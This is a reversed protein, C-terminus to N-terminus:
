SGVDKHKAAIAHCLEPFKRYLASEHCSLKKSLAAISVQMNTENLAAVMKVRINEWKENLMRSKNKAVLISIAKCQEPYNKYLKSASYGIIKSIDKITAPPHEKVANNFAKLVDEKNPICRKAQKRYSTQTPTSIKVVPDKLLFEAMSVGIRYCIKSLYNVQPIHRGLRWDGLMNKNLGVFRAFEYTNGETVQQICRVLSFSIQERVPLSVSIPATKLLDGFSNATWVRELLATEQTITIVKNNSHCTKGLWYGCKSCFGARSYSDIFYLNCKCFPCEMILERSHVPCITIMNLAWLLPFYIIKGADKWEEYCEPCWAQSQRLLCKNTMVKQWPLLTLYMLDKRLTLSELADKFTAAVVGFGNIMRSFKNFGRLEKERLYAANAMPAIEKAILTMVPVCHAEALRVIYGTLSEVQATGVGIPLLHYLRSRQTLELPVLNWVGYEDIDSSIM